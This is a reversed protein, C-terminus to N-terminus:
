NAAAIYWTSTLTASSANVTFPTSSGSSPMWEGAGLIQSTGEQINNVACPGVILYVAIAGTRIWPGQMPRGEAATGCQLTAGQVIPDLQQFAFSVNGNAFAGGDCSMLAGGTVSIGGAYFDGHLHLVAANGTVGSLSWQASPYCAALGGPVYGVTYSVAGDATGGGAAVTVQASPSVGTAVLTAIGAMVGVLTRRHRRASLLPKM